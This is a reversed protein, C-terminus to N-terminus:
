LVVISTDDDILPERYHPTELVQLSNQIETTKDNDVLYLKQRAEKVKDSLMQKMEFRDM